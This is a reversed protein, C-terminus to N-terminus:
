NYQLDKENGVINKVNFIFLEKIFINQIHFFCYKPVSLLSFDSCSPCLVFILKQSYFSPSSCMSCMDAQVRVHLVNGAEAQDVEAHVRLICLVNGLEAQGVEAQM